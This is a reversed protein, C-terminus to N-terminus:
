CSLHGPITYAYVQWPAKWAVGLQKFVHELSMKLAGKWGSGVRKLELFHATWDSAFFLIGGIRRNKRPYDPLHCPLFSELRRMLM